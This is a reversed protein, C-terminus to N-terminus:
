SILHQFSAYATVDGVMGPIDVCVRVALSFILEISRFLACTHVACYHCPWFFIRHDSRPICHPHLFVYINQFFIIERTITIMIM